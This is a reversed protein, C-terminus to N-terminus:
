AAQVWEQLCEYCHSPWLLFKFRSKELLVGLTIEVVGGKYGGEFPGAQAYAGVHLGSRERQPLRNTYRM